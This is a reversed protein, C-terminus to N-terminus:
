LENEELCRAANELIKLDAKAQQAKKSMEHRWARAGPVGQVLQLFHKSVDWLRGNKQLHKETYPILNRIISSAKVNSKTAGYILYDIEQWLLPNSYAARGVMAGDFIKLAKLCEEPTHIGGNLEIKLKPRKKKLKEVKEYELPPITRNQKPNLGKLWAKRAHIAFRDAGALAIADVFKLLFEDSDYHDIGTRHKITVPLSTANKMAEICNAVQKPNSMLCAGFNGSQVRPSPCGINLNIEDYGWEEAIKAAESLEKPDDGGIQLSIPHEISDFDLLRRGKAHLLAKAVIMETYLLARKSIQRFIVRFHRDTCDLMPAISFQYAETIDKRPKAIM